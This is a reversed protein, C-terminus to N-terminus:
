VRFARLDATARRRLKEFMCLFYNHEYSIEFENSSLISVVIDKATMHLMDVCLCLFFMGPVDMMMCTMDLLKNPILILNVM